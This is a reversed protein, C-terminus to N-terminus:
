SHPKVGNQQSLGSYFKKKESEEKYPRLPASIPLNTAMSRFGEEISFAQAANARRWTIKSMSVRLFSLELNTSNM